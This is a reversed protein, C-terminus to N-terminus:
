DDRRKIRDIIQDSLNRLHQSSLLQIDSLGRLFLAMETEPTREFPMLEKLGHYQSRSLSQHCNHCVPITLNGYKRGAIHHMEINRPDLHYGCLVCFGGTLILQEVLSM